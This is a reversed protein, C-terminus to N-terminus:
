ENVVDKPVLLSREEVENSVSFRIGAIDMVTYIMDDTRWERHTSNAIRAVTEPYKECFSATPYILFPIESAVKCSEPDSIIAHHFYDNRTYFLDLGHDSFYIVIAEDNKFEDFVQNIVWDTYRVSNDYSSIVNRQSEPIDSYDSPTFFEFEKPYRESFREHSGMLHLFYINRGHSDTHIEKLHPILDGDKNSRNLGSFIDGLFVVSDCLDAYNGILNDYIGHKAQNSIWTQRYGTERMFQFISPCTWYTVSDEFEPRYTSLISRFAEATSTAPSTIKDFVYLSDVDILHQTYPMTAKNYGYFQCHQRNHSEGFIVVINKPLYDEDYFLEGDFQNYLPITPPINRIYNYLSVLKGEVSKETVIRRGANPKILLVGLCIVLAIIAHLPKINKFKFNNNRFYFYLILIIVPSVFGLVVGKFHLGFFENVEDSNTGLIASIFDKNFNTHYETLCIIDCFFSSSLLLLLIWIVINQIKRNHILSILLTSIYSFIFAHALILVIAKIDEESISFIIEGLAILLFICLFLPFWKKNM